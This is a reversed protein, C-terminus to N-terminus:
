GDKNFDGAVINLDAFTPSNSGISGEFGRYATPSGFGGHGDGMAVSFFGAQTSADQNTTILDLKGDGNLDTTLVNHSGDGTLVSTERGFSLSASLMMRHELAECALRVALCNVSRRGRKSM